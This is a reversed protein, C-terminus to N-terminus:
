VHGPEIMHGAPFTTGRIVYHVHEALIEENGVGNQVSCVGSREDFIHAIQQIAMKTHISKTAVIGFDCRPIERPNASATLHAVFNAAGSIRLGNRNMAEVHEKSVEYAYVEVRDIGALHAAFISGMAGCGVICIKM